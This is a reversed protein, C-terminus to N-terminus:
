QRSESFFFSIWIADRDPETFIKKKEEHWYIWVNVTDFSLGQIIKGVLIYTTTLCYILKDSYLNFTSVLIVKDLFIKQDGCLIRPSLLSVSRLEGVWSCLRIWPSHPGPKGKQALNYVEIFTNWCFIELKTRTVNQLWIKKRFFFGPGRISIDPDAEPCHKLRFNM